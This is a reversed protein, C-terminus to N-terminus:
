QKRKMHIMLLRCVDAFMKVFAVPLYGAMSLIWGPKTSWRLTLVPYEEKVAYPIFVKSPRMWITNVCNTESVIEVWLPIRTKLVIKHKKDVFKDADPHQFSLVHRKEGPPAYFAIFHNNEYNYRMCRCSRADYQLGNPFSLISTETVDSMGRKINEIFSAHVADDNDVRVSILGREGYRKEFDANLLDAFRDSEEDDLFWPEFQPLEEKYKEIQARFRAPTEKHFLVIWRFDRDTQAQFSPFTYRDFLAFRKGLYEEDLWLFHDKPVNKYLKEYRYRVALNFRTIVAVPQM